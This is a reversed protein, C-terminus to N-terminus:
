IPPLALTHRYRDPQRDAQRGTQRDTQRGTQIYRQRHIKTLIQRQGQPFTSYSHLL